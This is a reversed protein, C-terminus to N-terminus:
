INFCWQVAWFRSMRVGPLYDCLIAFLRETLEICM